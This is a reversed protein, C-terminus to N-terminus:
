MRQRASRALLGVAADFHAVTAEVEVLRCPREALLAKAQRASEEADPSLYLGGRALDTVQASRARLLGALEDRKELAACNAARASEAGTQYETAMAFWRDLGIKAAPWKGQDATGRLTALWPRLGEIQGDNLPAQLGVPDRIEALTRRQADRAVANTAM